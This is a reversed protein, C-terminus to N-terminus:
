GRCYWRSRLFAIPFNICAVLPAQEGPVLPLPRLVAGDCLMQVTIIGTGLYAKACAADLTWLWGGESLGSFIVLGVAGCRKAVHSKHSVWLFSLEPRKRTNGGTNL